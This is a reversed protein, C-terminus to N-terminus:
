VTAREAFNSALAAVLDPHARQAWHSSELQRRTLDPAWLEIDRLLNPGVFRDKTLEIVQVPLETRRERPHKLLRRMNARYLEVGNSGDRALTARGGFLRSALSTKWVLEPLRPIHFFGVYWSKLAQGVAAGPHSRPLVRLLYGIHDLCPGSMSTFSTIRGVARPDTVAEWAQISGWDHAVLHVPAGVADVVAFLDDALQEVRYGDRSSPATSEGAGRVDYAVVHWDGLHQLMPTWVEHSDPFGHLLLMRPKSVDGSTFVALEVGDTSVVKDGAVWASNNSM